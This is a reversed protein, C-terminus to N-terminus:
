LPAAESFDVCINQGENGTSYMIDKEPRVSAGSTHNRNVAPCRAACARRHNIVSPSVFM